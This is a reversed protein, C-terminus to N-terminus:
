EQRSKSFLRVSHESIDSGTQSEPISLQVLGLGTDHNRRCCLICSNDTTVMYYPNGTVSHCGLHKPPSTSNEPCFELPIHSRWFFYFPLINLCLNAPLSPLIGPSAPWRTRGLRHVGPETPSGMEMNEFSSRM